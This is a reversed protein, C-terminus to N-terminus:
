KWLALTRRALRVLRIGNAELIFDFFSVFGVRSAPSQEQIGLVRFGCYAAELEAGEASAARRPRHHGDGADDSALTSSENGM